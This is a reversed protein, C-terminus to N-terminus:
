TLTFVHNSIGTKTRRKCIYVRPTSVLTRANPAAVFVNNLFSFFITTSRAKDNHVPVDDSLGAVSSLLVREARDIVKTQTNTRIRGDM